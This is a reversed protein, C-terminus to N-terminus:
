TPTIMLAPRGARFERRDGPARLPFMVEAPGASPSTGANADTRPPKDEEPRPLNRRDLRATSTSRWNPPPMTPFRRGVTLNEPM